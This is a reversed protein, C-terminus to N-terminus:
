SSSQMYKSRNAFISLDLRLSSLKTSAKRSSKLRLPRASISSAAPIVSQNTGHGVIFEKNTFRHYKLATEGTPDVYSVPNLLAYQCPNLELPSALIRRM